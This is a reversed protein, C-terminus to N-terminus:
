HCVERPVNEVDKVEGSCDQAKLFMIGKPSIAIINILPRRRIDTWGDSVISVWSSSWSACVPALIGEM